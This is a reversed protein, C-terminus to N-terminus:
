GRTEQKQKADRLRNERGLGPKRDNRNKVGFFVKSAYYENRGALNSPYSNGYGEGRNKNEIPSPSIIM